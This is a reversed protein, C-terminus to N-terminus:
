LQYMQSARDLEEMYQGMRPSEYLYPYAMEQHPPPPLATPPEEPAAPPPGSSPPEEELPLARPPEPKPRIMVPPKPSIMSFYM